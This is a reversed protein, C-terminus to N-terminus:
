SRLSLGRASEEPNPSDLIAGIVAVGYGALLNRNEPKIGGLALAPIPASGAMAKFTEVGLCPSGPHSATPFVPALLAFDAGAMYAQNIEAM